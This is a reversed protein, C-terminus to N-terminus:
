LVELKYLKKYIESTCNGICYALMEEDDNIGEKSLNLLNLVRLFHTSMHVAEHSIINVTLRNKYLLVDGIKPRYVWKGDVMKEWIYPIVVGMTSDINKEWPVLKKYYKRLGEITEFIHITYYHSLSPQFPNYKGPNINFKEIRDKIM